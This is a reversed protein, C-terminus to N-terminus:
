FPQLPIQVHRVPSRGRGLKPILGRFVVVTPVDLLAFRYSWAGLSQSPLYVSLIMAEIYLATWVGGHIGWQKWLWSFGFGLFYCAVVGGWSWELYADAVFGGATGLAPSFGMASNWQSTTLGYMGPQTEMWELGIDHWKTPWFASPIPRILFMSIARAGWFHHGYQKSALITAGAAVFEDGTTLPHNGTLTAQLGIEQLAIDPLASTQRQAVVFLLLLGLMGVGGLIVTWNPKKNKMLFWCAALMAAILFITGRRKGIIAWSVQPSAIYLLTLLRGGTLRQGQWCAALLLLAPYTLMPLEGIYGSTSILFPKPHFFMRVLGGSRSVLWWFAVFGLTGLVLSLQFFRQRVRPSVAQELIRFRQDDGTTRRYYSAGLCFATVSILHVLLIYEIDGSRPFFVCLPNATPSTEAIWPRGDFITPASLSIDGSQIVFPHYAYVYFLMPAFIVLPSLPDGTRRYSVLLATLIVVATLLLYLESM